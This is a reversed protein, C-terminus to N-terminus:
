MKGCYGLGTTAATNDFAQCVDGGDFAMNPCKHNNDCTPQCTQSGLDCVLGAGCDRDGNMSCDGDIPLMTTGISRCVYFGNLTTFNTMMANLATGSEFGLLACTQNTPCSGTTFPDCPKLCYGYKYDPFTITFCKTGGTCDSDADCLHRCAFVGTGNSISTCQAGNVCTDDGAGAPGRTCTTGEATGTSGAGAVCRPALNPMMATGVNKIVCRDNPATCGTQKGPDCATGTNGMTMDPAAATLDQTAMDSVTPNSGCGAVAVVFALYGLSRM